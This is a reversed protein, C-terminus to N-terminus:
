RKGQDKVYVQAYQPNFDIMSVQLAWALTAADRDSLNTANRSMDILLQGPQLHIIAFAALTNAIGQSTWSDYKCKEAREVLWDVDCVRLRGFAWALDSVDRGLLVLNTMATSQGCGVSERNVLVFFFFVIGLVKCFM